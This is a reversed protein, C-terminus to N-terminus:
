PEVSFVPTEDQTERGPIIGTASIDDNDIAGAAKTGADSDRRRDPGFSYV